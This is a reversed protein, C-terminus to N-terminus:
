DKTVFVFFRDYRNVFVKKQLKKYKKIAINVDNLSNIEIDEIQVIIDGGQFGSSEAIIKDEEM